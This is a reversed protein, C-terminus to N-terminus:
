KSKSSEIRDRIEAALEEAEAVQATTMKERLSDKLESAEENGQAAALIYWAYAKVYDKPVGDEGSECGLGLSRLARAPDQEAAARTQEIDELQGPICGTFVMATTECASLVREIADAERQDITLGHKARVQVTREAYWCQNLEPLWDAADKGSKQRRNVSPSALTLNLLDRAFNRKSEADASCLGSDHAESRAVIHEIDTEQTSSFCTGTYPGYIAGGMAEVIEHEVSQPYSYDASTYDSCRDEPAVVLGRWTENSKAQVALIALALVVPILPKM